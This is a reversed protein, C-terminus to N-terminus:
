FNIEVGAVPFLSFQEVEDVTGDSNYRYGAINKRGAVNSVSLYLNLSWSSFNYRSNFAIDLRHYDPYRAGNVNDTTKWSGKSWRLGAEYYQEDATFYRPTYTRGSAYRYRISIEMDNSFPLVYSLYKFIPNMEDLKDRLGSFRKGIILTGVYPFDYDGPFRDGERGIRPDDMSSWMRSFSLTGYFDGVLKQQLLIDLGTTQMTGVNLNRLSRFTPDYFHIFEEEVPIDNYNKRYGEVTLRLGDGLIYEIGAVFHRAHTNKLYRNVESKIRDGYVPYSQSQYFEGYAGNVIFVGPVVDYSVSFRPSFNGARPFSFYDYRLGLNVTLREGFLRVKDNLFAYSKFQNFLKYEYSHNVTPRVVVASWNGNILYRASDGWYYVDQIFTGTGLMGGFSLEHSPHLKWVFESKLVIQGNDHYDKVQPTKRVPKSYKLKGNADYSRETFWEDGTVDVHYNNAFLTTVSFLNKAWISNLSLGAAWQSQKVDYRYFGVSDTINSLKKNEEDPDGEEIIMDNGYIGSFSLKHDGSLNYAVKGQVDWYRPISKLGFSGAILDIFSKRGSIIWSGKGGDIAGEAIAGYGAMSLNLNMRLPHNRTGERTEIVMVSSLKDGFKSIFGGTSFQISEILDVNVMNIPGGSNMENPYHNTSHLEMNDFLTLNEHPAGGRVLLENTQDTSFSVGAMGQLIRQFDQSSGPSRRIEESGLVVTALPNLQVSKDFYDGRVTIEDLEISATSLKVQVDAEKGARAIIDTKIVTTYGVLSVRISYSGVPVRLKFTGDLGTAAGIAELEVILVNAGILAEGSTADTVKGTITSQQQAQITTCSWFLIIFSLVTLKFPVM